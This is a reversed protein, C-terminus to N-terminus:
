LFYRNLENYATRLVGDRGGDVIDIGGNGIRIPWIINIISGVTPAPDLFFKHFTHLVTRLMEGPAASRCVRGSGARVLFAVAALVMKGFM